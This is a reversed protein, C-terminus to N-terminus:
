LRVRERASEVSYSFHFKGAAAALKERRMEAILAKLGSVLADTQNLKGLACAQKLLDAPIHASIKKLSSAM